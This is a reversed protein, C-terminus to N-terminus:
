LLASPATPDLESTEVFGACTVAGNSPKGAAADEETLGGGLVPSDWAKDLSIGLPLEEAFDVVRFLM